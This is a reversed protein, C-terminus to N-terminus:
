LEEETSIKKISLVAGRLTPLNAVDIHVHTGLNNSFAMRLLVDAMYALGDANASLTASPPATTADVALDFLPDFGLEGFREAFASLFATAAEPLNM